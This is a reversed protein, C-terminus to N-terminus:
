TYKRNFIEQLIIAKRAGDPDRLMDKIDAGVGEEEEQDFEKFRSYDGSYVSHVDTNTTELPPDLDYDHKVEDDMELDQDFVSTRSAIRKRGAARVEAITQPKKTSAKKVPAPNNQKQQKPNTFEKLLDEFSVNEETTPANTKPQSASEQMKKKNSKIVKSVVYIIFLVIYFLIKFDDM